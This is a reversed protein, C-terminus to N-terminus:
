ERFKTKRDDRRWDELIFCLVCIGFTIPFTEYTFKGINIGGVVIFFYVMIMFYNM